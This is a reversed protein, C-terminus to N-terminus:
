KGDGLGAAAFLAATRDTAGEIHAIPDDLACNAAPPPAPPAAAAAEVRVTATFAAAAAEERLQNAAKAAARAQVLVERQRQGLQKPAATATPEELGEEGEEGEEGEGEGEARKRKGKVKREPIPDGEQWGKPFPKKEVVFWEYMAWLARVATMHKHALTFVKKNPAAQSKFAAYHPVLQPWLWNAIQFKRNFIGGPEKTGTIDDNGLLYTCMEKVNGPRWKGTDLSLLRVFYSAHWKCQQMVPVKEDEYYLGQKQVVWTGYQNALKTMNPVNIEHHTFLPDTWAFKILKEPAVEIPADASPRDRVGGAGAAAKARSRKKPAAPAPAPAPAAAAPEAAREPAAPAAAAASPRAWGAAAAAEADRLRTKLADCEEQTAAAARAYQEKIERLQAQAEQHAALTAAAQAQNVRSELLAAAAEEADVARRKAADLQEQLKDSERRCVEAQSFELDRDRRVAELDDEITKIYRANAKAAEEAKACEGKVRALTENLAQNEEVQTVLQQNVDALEKTTAALELRWTDVISKDVTLQDITSGVRSEVAAAKPKSAARAPAEKPAEKPAEDGFRAAAVGKGARPARSEALSPGQPVLVRARRGSDHARAGVVEDVIGSM